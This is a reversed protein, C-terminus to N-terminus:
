QIVFALECLSPLFNLLSITTLLVWITVKLTALKLRTLLNKGKGEVILSACQSHPVLPSAPSILHQQRFLTTFNLTLYSFLFESGSSSAVRINRVDPDVLFFPNVLFSQHKNLSLIMQSTDIFIVM